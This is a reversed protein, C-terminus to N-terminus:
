LNQIYKYLISEFLIPWLAGWLFDMVITATILSTTTPIIWLIITGQYTLFPNSLFHNLM